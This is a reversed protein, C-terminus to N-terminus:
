NQFLFPMESPRGVGTLIQKLARLPRLLLWSSVLDPAPVFIRIM